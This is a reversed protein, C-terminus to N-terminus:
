VLGYRRCWARYVTPVVDVDPLAIMRRHPFGATDLAGVGAYGEEVISLVEAWPQYDSVTPDDPLRYVAYARRPNGNPDNTTRISQYALM